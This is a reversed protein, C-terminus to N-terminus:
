PSTDAKLHPIQGYSPDQVDLLGPVTVEDGNALCHGLLPRTSGDIAQNAPYLLSIPSLIGCM